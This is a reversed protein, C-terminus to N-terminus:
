KSLNYHLIEKLAKFGDRFANMHKGEAKTRPYYNIPMQAFKLGRVKSFKATIEPEFGFNSTATLTKALERFLEGKAMKYCVEMDRPFMGARIGTFIASVASLFTNGLWNQVYVVENKEGFRNGYVVDLKETTIKEYIKLLDKPEYELDADQIVVYEGTSALIGKQVSRSKGSSKENRLIKINGYKKALEEAHMNTRDVSGDDVIIIEFSMANSLIEEVKEVIERLTKEENKAPMILSLDMSLIM